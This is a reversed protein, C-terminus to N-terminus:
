EVEITVSLQATPTKGEGVYTVIAQQFTEALTQQLFATPVRMTPARPSGVKCLVVVDDVLFSWTPFRHRGNFTCTARLKAGLRIRSEIEVWDPKLAETVVVPTGM